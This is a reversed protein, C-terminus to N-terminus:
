KVFVHLVFSGGSFLVTKMFLFNVNLDRAADSLLTAGTALLTFERQEMRTANPDVMAWVVLTEHQNEISLIEAGTPMEVSVKLLRKHEGPMM